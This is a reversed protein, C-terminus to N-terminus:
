RQASVRDTMGAVAPIWAVSLPERPENPRGRAGQGPHRDPAPTVVRKDGRGAAIVM